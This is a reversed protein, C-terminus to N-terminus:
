HLYLLIKGAQTRYLDLSMIIVSSRLIESVNLDRDDAEKFIWSCFFSAYHFMLSFREYSFWITPESNSKGAIVYYVIKDNIKPGIWKYVSNEFIQGIILELLSSCAVVALFEWDNMCSCFKSVALPVSWWVAAPGTNERLPSDFEVYTIKINKGIGKGKMPFPSLDRDGIGCSPKDSFRM